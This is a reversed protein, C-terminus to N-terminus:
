RELWKVLEFLEAYKVGIRQGANEAENKFFSIWKQGTRELESAHARIAKEKTEWYETIDVYFNGRFELTAHYWNSRYMLLRPVHRCGHLSARSLAQHDHHIDGAWHTYVMDIKKQDVIRLIEMNLEDTFEVQLTKFQGCILEKVGLIRMAEEAERRATDNSRVVEAYQNTFGSVTAVYAYVNDGRRVHRALTGGCGLEVDDFHAGIALVNM